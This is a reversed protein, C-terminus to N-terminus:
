DTCLGSTNFFRFRTEKASLLYFPLTDCCGFNLKREWRRLEAYLSQFSRCLEETMCSTYEAGRCSLITLLFDARSKESAALGPFTM